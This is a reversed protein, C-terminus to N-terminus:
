ACPQTAPASTTGPRSGSNTSGRMTTANWRPPSSGPSVTTTFSASSPCASNAFASDDSPEGRRMPMPARVHPSVTSSSVRASGPTSSTFPVGSTLRRRRTLDSRSSCSIVSAQRMASSVIAAVAGRTAAPTVIASSASSTSCWIRM